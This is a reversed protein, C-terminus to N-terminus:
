FPHFCHHCEKRFAITYIILAVCVFHLPIQSGSLESAWSPSAGSRAAVGLNGREDSDGHAILTSNGCPLIVFAETEDRGIAASRLDKYVDAGKEISM